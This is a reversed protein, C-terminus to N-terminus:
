YCLYIYINKFQESNIQNINVLKLNISDLYIYTNHVTKVFSYEQKPPNAMLKKIFLNFYKESELKHYKQEITNFSIDFNTNSEFILKICPYYYDTYIERVFHLPHLGWVHRADALRISPAKVIFANSLYKRMLQFVLDLKLDESKNPLFNFVNDEKLYLQARKVEILIIQKENYFKLINQCFNKILDELKNRPIEEFLIRKKIAPLYKQDIFYNILERNTDTILSDDELLLYNYRAWGNDLILYDSQVKSLFDFLTHTIDIFSCRFKFNSFSKFKKCCENKIKEFDLSTRNSEIRQPAFIPSSFNIYQCIKETQTKNIDINWGKDEHKFGFIDRSVCCCCMNITKTNNESEVIQNTM